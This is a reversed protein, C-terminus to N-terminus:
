AAGGKEPAPPLPIPWWHTFFGDAFSGIGNTWPYSSLQPVKNFWVEEVTAPVRTHSALFHTGDRPASEIGQWQYRAMQEAARLLSPFANVRRVIEAHDEVYDDDPNILEAYWIGGNETRIISHGEYDGTDGLESNFTEHVLPEIHRLREESLTPPVMKTADAIHDPKAYACDACITARKDGIFDDPCNRCHNLYKGPAWGYRQPRSDEKPQEESQETTM